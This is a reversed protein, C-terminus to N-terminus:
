EVVMGVYTATFKTDVPMGSSSMYPHNNFLTAMIIISYMDSHTHCMKNTYKSLWHMWQSIGVDALNIKSIKKHLSTETRQQNSYMHVERWNKIGTDVALRGLEQLM